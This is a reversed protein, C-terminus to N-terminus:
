QKAGTNNTASKASSDLDSWFLDNSRGNPWVITALIIKQHDYKSVNADHWQQLSSLFQPAFRGIHRKGAYYTALERSTYIYLHYGSEGAMGGVVLEEGVFIVTAPQTATDIWLMGHIMCAHPVCGTATIFRDEAVSFDGPVGLFTPIISRITTSGGYGDVWWSERQPLTQQLLVALRPDSNFEGEYGNQSAYCPHKM